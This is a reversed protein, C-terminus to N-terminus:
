DRANAEQDKSKNIDFREAAALVPSGRLNMVHLGYRDTTSAYAHGIAAQIASTEFGAKRGATVLSHRAAHPPVTDPNKLVDPEAANALRAIRKVLRFVESRQMRNGTSTAILPPSGANVDGPRAPLRQVDGRGALYADLRRAAPDPIPFWHDGKGKLVVHLARVGDLIVMDALTANCLESVRLGMMFLMAIVASTRAATEPVPDADGARVMAQVEADSLSRTPSQDKSTNLGKKKRSFQVPSAERHGEEVCWGYFSSVASVLQARSRKALVKGTTPHPTTAIAEVWDLVLQRDADLVHVGRHGCWALWTLGNRLETTKRWDGAQHGKKVVNDHKDQRDPVSTLYFPWGIADAYGARTNASQEKLWAGVLGLEREWREATPPRVPTAGAPVLDTM